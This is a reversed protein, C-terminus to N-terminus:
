PRILASFGVIDDPRPFRHIMRHCNACLVTFDDAISYEVSQGEELSSLPKLHHAEIFNAGIPGYKAAFNLGCAKCTLGHHRKVKNGCATNREIRRHMRYRRKETLTSEPPVGEDAIDEEAQLDAGGRFTLKLYADVIGQLDGVMQADDPM